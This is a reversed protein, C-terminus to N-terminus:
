FTYRATLTTRMVDTVQVLGSAAIGIINREGTINHLNLQLSLKRNVQYRGFAEYTPKMEVWYSGGARMDGTDSVGAGLMVGHLPGSTFTYKGLLSIIRESHNNVPLGEATKGDADYVTLIADAYGNGTKYRATLDFEIGKVSDKASQVAKPVGTTGTILTRVNTLYQDFYVLSGFMNVRESFKHDFKIGGEKVVGSQDKLLEGPDNPGDEGPARLVGSRPIANEATQAYLVVSPLVKYIIGFRHSKYSQGFSTPEPTVVGGSRDVTNSQGGGNYRLGGILILKDNLLKANEQFYFSTNDGSTESDYGAPAQAHDLPYNKTVNAAIWASDGDLIADIFGPRTDLNVTRTNGDAYRNFAKQYDMGVMNELTLWNLKLDYRYDAQLNHNKWIVNAPIFRRRLTYNDALTFVGQHLLERDRNRSYSYSVRLNGDGLKALYATNLYFDKNKWETDRSRSSSFSKTSNPHLKALTLGNKQATVSIDLFDEWTEYNNDAFLYTDVTLTQASGLEFRLSGGIFREDYSVSEKEHKGTLGGITVRYLVKNEKGVYLPGSQNYTAKFTSQDGVMIEATSAFQATPSKTITNVGGGIYSNALVMNLPGKIVEIREVDYLPMKKYNYKIVGNRLAATSRFGRITTDDAVKQNANVGSVGFNLATLLNSNLDDLLEKNIVQLSSPIELLNKASRTSLSTQRSSYGEDNASSVVYPSLEVVQNLDSSSQPTAQGSASTCVAISLLFLLAVGLPLVRLSRICNTNNM